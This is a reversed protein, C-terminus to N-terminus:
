ICVYVSMWIWICICISYICTCICICICTCICTPYSTSESAVNKNMQHEVGMLGPILADIKFKSHRLYRMGSLRKIAKGILGQWFPLAGSPHKEFNPFDGTPLTELIHNGWTPRNGTEGQLLGLNSFCPWTHLSFSCWRRPVQQCHMTCWHCRSMIYHLHAPKRETVPQFMTASFCQPQDKFVTKSLPIVLM